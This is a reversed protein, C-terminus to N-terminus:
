LEILILLCTQIIIITIILCCIRGTALCFLQQGIVTLLQASQTLPFPSSDYIIQVNICSTKLSKM